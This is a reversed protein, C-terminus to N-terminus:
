KLEFSGTGSLFGKNYVEVQYKGAQFALGPAWLLCLEQEDNMYETESFQTYRIEEGTKTSSIAGSGLSEIALTEGGPNVVRVFFQEVGPKVVDNPMTTFCIKLEDVKKASKKEPTKGNPRIKLGEVKINKVKIVSGIEVSKAYEMNQRVLTAKAKNLQANEMIRGQLDVYFANKDAALRIINETLEHNQALLQEIESRAEGMQAQLNELEKRVQKLKKSDVLLDEIKAKRADLETKQAEILGNMEANIGKYSELEAMAEAYEDDLAAKLTHAENIENYAQELEKNKNVNSYTLFGATIVM